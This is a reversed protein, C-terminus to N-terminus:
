FAWSWARGGELLVVAGAFAGAVLFPGFPIAAKRDAGRALLVASWAAGALTGLFLALLGHAAGLFGGVGAMLKVDGGGLAERGFAKKGVLGLLGMVSALVLTGLPSSWRSAYLAPFLFSGALGAVILPFTLIDYLYFTGADVLAALASVLFFLGFYASRGNAGYRAVIGATLLGFGLEVLPYRIPIHWGCQRCRGGLILWSFVPINDRAGVPRKCHPCHSAPLALGIGKPYRYAFVNAFSGLCLGVLGAFVTLGAAFVL